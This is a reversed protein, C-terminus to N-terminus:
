ITQFKNPGFHNPEAQAKGVSSSCTQYAEIRVSDFQVELDNLFLKVVPKPQLWAM